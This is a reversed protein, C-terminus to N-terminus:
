NFGQKWDNSKEHLYTTTSHALIDRHMENKNGLLLEGVEEDAIQTTLLQLAEKEDLNEAYILRQATIAQSRKAYPCRSVTEKLGLIQEFYQMALEGARPMQPGCVIVVLRNWRDKPMLSHIKKMENQLSDLRMKAVDDIIDRINKKLITMTDNSPYSKQVLCNQYIEVVTKYKLLLSSTLMEENLINKLTEAYTKEYTEILRQDMQSAQKLKKFNFLTISCHAIAKLHHYESSIYPIVKRQKEDFLILDDDKVLIVPIERGIKDSEIKKVQAYTELFLQNLKDLSESLEQHNDNNLHNCNKDLDIKIISNM